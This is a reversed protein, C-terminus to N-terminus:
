SYRRGRLSAVIRTVTWALVVLTYVPLDRASWDFVPKHEWLVRYATGVVVFAAVLGILLVAPWGRTVSVPEGRASRLGVGIMGVGAAACFALMATDFRTRPDFITSIGLALAGTGAAVFFTAGLIRRAGPGDARSELDRM